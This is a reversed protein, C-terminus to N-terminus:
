TVLWSSLTTNDHLVLKFSFKICGWLLKSWIGPQALKIYLLSSWGMFFFDLFLTCPFYILWHTRCSFLLEVLLHSYLVLTLLSSSLFQWTLIHGTFGAFSDLWIHDTLLGSINCDLLLYCISSSHGTLDTYESLFQWSVWIPGTFDAIFVYTTVWLLLVM